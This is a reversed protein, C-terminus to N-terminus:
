NQKLNAWNHILYNVCIVYNYLKIEVNKYKYDSLNVNRFHKM